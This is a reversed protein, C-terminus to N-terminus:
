GLYIHSLKITFAKNLVNLVNIGYMICTGILGM